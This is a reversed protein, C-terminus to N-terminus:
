PQPAERIEVYARARVDRAWLALAEEVKEERVANRVLERQEREGLPVTRREDVRILHVGFRSVVPPSIEGPQLRNMAQEFEPVFLGPAAWGLSGGAAASGDQSNERALAEFSAQGGAIRQRFEALRAQAAEATLQPGPRLLIHSARTQTVNMAPMGASRRDNVKLVHFGALSRVPGAVQGAPLARTANVFIDPLRTASRWGFQGGNVREPADSFERALTAFDEGSRARDAVRQARAQREAVQADSANEPVSVLVHSLNLELTSLDSGGQQERIHDDIDADTVRIRSDVERERVRQLLIQQRLENRLRNIDIGETALRRRFANRDLQNQAAINAEAEDIETDSVRLGSEAAFQLQARENILQELVQRVLEDRPPANTIGRQAINQQVQLLRQRVDHNTVPESNVLAVIFDATRNTSASASLPPLSLGGPNRLTQASASGAMILAIACAVISPSFHRDTM